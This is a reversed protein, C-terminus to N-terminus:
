IKKKDEFNMMSVAGIACWFPIGWWTLHRITFVSIVWLVSWIVLKTFIKM